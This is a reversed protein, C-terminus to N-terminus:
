HLYLQRLVHPPLLYSIRRLIGINKSIKKNIELIHTNWKLHQDIHIGLFKTTSVVPITM